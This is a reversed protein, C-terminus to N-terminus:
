CPPVSRSCAQRPDPRRTVLSGSRDVVRSWEEDPCPELGLEDRLLCKYRHWQRIAESRNGEALHAEVLLRNASERLPESEVAATAALVAHALYGARLCRRCLAEVAHLSVQRVREREVVLWADWLDPLLEGVLAQADIAVLDVGEAADMLCRAAAEVARVDVRVDPRLALSVGCVAVLDGAVSRLRWLATRLNAAARADPTEPWLTGAVFARNLARHHLALFALLRQCAVPVDISGASSRLEFGGLLLLEIGPGHAQVM